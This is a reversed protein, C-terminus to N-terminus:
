EEEDDFWDDTKNHYIGTNDNKDEVIEFTTSNVTFTEYEDLETIAHDLQNRKERGLERRYEDPDCHKLVDACSFTNGRVTIYRGEDNLIDDFFYATSEEIDAALMDYFRQETVEEGEVLYQKM